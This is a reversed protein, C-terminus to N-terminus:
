NSEAKRRAEDIAQNKEVIRAARATGELAAIMSPLHAWRHEAISLLEPKGDVQVACMLVLGVPRAGTESVISEELGKLVLELFKRLECVTAPKQDAM